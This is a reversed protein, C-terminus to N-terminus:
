EGMAFAVVLSVWAGVAGAFKVAAAALPVCILREQDAEVSL